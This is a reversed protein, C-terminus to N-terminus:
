WQKRTVPILVLTIMIWCGNFSIFSANESTDQETRSQLVIRIYNDVVSDNLSKKYYLTKLGTDMEFRIEWELDETTEREFYEKDDIGNEINEDGYIEQGDHGSDMWYEFYSSISGDDYDLQATFINSFLYLIRLDEDDTGYFNTNGDMTVEVFEYPTTEALEEFQMGEISKKIEMTLKSGQVAGPYFPHGSADTITQNNYSLVEFEWTYTNGTLKKSYGLSIPEAAQTSVPFILLLSLIIIYRLLLALKGKSHTIQAM